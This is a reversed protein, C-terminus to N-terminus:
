AARPGLECEIRLRAPRGGGAMLVQQSCRQLPPAAALAAALAGAGGDNEHGGGGGGSRLEGAAGAAAGCGAAADWRAGGAAEADLVRQHLAVRSVHRQPELLNEVPVLRGRVGDVFARFFHGLPLAQVEEALADRTLLARGEAASDTAGTMAVVGLRLLSDGFLAQLERLAAQHEATIRGRPVVIVFASVGHPAFEAIRALEGRVTEASRATDCLGPTDIVRFPENYFSYDRFTAAQTVSSVSSAAAFRKHLRGALTNATSSKGAGTIGVVVVVRRAPDPAEGRALRDYDSGARWSRLAAADCSPARPLALASALAAIAYHGQLFRM